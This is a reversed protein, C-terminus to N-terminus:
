TERATFGARAVIERLRAPGVAHPNFDVTASAEAFSAAAQRVGPERALVANLREACGDCHMGDIRLTLRSM